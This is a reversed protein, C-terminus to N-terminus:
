KEKHPLKMYYTIFYGLLLICGIIASVIIAFRLEDAGADLSRMFLFALVVLLLTATFFLIAYIVKM